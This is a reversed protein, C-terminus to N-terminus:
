FKNACIPGIGNAVSEEDELLRGCAGCVGVLRGYAKMAALPDKLIATLQEECKGVYKSDPAQRGYNNRNGYEAGDDVFIYGHWRSNKGPRRIAIKLRTDSGPVAYTGGPLDSLDIGNAEQAIRDDNKAVHKAYMKEAAAFQNPTLSGFEQAKVIMQAAFSNWGSVELMYEVLEKNAAKWEEYASVKAQAILTKKAVARTKAKQRSEPSTKFFRKGKGKCKFCRGVYRGTYSLFEGSGRCAKCVEEFRAVTSRSETTGFAERIVAEEDTDITADNIFEDSEPLEHLDEFTTEKHDCM